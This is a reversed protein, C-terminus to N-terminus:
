LIGNESGRARARHVPAPKEEPEPEEGSRSRERERGPECPGAAPATELDRAGREAGPNAHDHVLPIGGPRRARDLGREARNAVDVGLHADM